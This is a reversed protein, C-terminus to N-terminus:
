TFQHLWHPFCHLNSLYNFIFRGYSGDSRSISKYVFSIFLAKQPSIQLGMNMAANTMVALIHCCCLHRDALSCIFLHSKSFVCKCACIYVCPCVCHLIKWGHFHLVNAMQLLMSPGQACYALYPLSLCTSYTSDLFGFEYFCLIFPPYLIPCINNLYVFKCYTTIFGLSSICLVKFISM